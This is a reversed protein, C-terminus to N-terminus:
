SVNLLFLLYLMKSQKFCLPYLRIHVNSTHIHTQSNSFTSQLLVTRCILICSDAKSRAIQICLSALSIRKRLIVFVNKNTHSNPLSLLCIISPGIKDFDQVCTKICLIGNSNTLPWCGKLLKLIVATKINLSYNTRFPINNKFVLWVM